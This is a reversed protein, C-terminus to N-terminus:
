EFAFQSNYLSAYFGNLEMLQNHTGQEVINGEKMVLILDSNKITSLRHAIVFSTRGKTIKDMSEQIVEETRTDVNSTAEDLIMLPSNKLMARAITILQKQGNSVNSEESIVFDLGGPLSEVYHTLGVEALVEYIKEDTIGKTNYVLNERLTGEFLWTDQLVMGFIERIESRPMQKTDVNDIYIHGNNLEYFRELLNVMTTKGAGTPGVIAVKMGPAVKCSFDHIIERDKNYSFNVHEFYVEGKVNKNSETLLKYEKNEEDELEEEGLFEYVRKSSAAATQLNNAAQAIQSLPSQFLNVYTMFASITGFSVGMNANLLLGGVVFIAAYAFYSIFSMIPMMMGGYIQALYMTKKLEQNDKEFEATVREEANFVKIILQGSFNEEVISNVKGIEESRKIFMPSAFKLIIVLFIAMLPLSSLATLAMQWSTAFMAILVGVLMLISQILMSLSQQLSMGIQDVDNTLRSLIDGFQHTDFYRLPMRNIKKSIQTRLIQSYKQTITTIIFSSFYSSIAISLYFVILVIGISEVKALDINNTASNNAIENTLDKLYQPAIVQLIVSVAILIVAVILPWLYKKLDKSINLLSKSFDGKKLKENPRPGPGLM